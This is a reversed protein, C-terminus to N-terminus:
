LSAPELVAEVLECRESEHVSWVNLKPLNDDETVNSVGHENELLDKVYLFSFDLASYDSGMKDVAIKKNGAKVYKANIERM